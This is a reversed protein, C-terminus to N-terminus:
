LPVPLVLSALLKVQAAGFAVAARYNAIRCLLSCLASLNGIEASQGKLNSVRRLEFDNSFQNM